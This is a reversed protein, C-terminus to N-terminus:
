PQRETEKDGQRGTEKDALTTARLTNYMLMTITMPGVGGPVPTIASAVEKVAAFDVDGVWKGDVRNMGVDVVVAGPRVMDAKLFHASGIAMVIIDAQRTLAAIDRSRSHCVTVTANAGKAKQMLILALPKGVINSRGVIVVHSGEVTIGNRLLLQQVGFPTCPLYRPQGTALLGLSEPGFGDVDKLPDVSRIIAAEDIPAPLPLQVLIGHVKPDANLQQVVELLQQQSTSAPLEHLWSAMGLQECAKRKNRVYTKSASNDGVLVAALGPRIGRSQVFAAVEVAIEARMTQALQNGDLLIATM